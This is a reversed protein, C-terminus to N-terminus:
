GTPEDGGYLPRYIARDAPDNQELAHGPAPGCPMASLARLIFGRVSGSRAGEIALAVM